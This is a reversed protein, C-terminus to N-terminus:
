IKYPRMYLGKGKYPKLYLGKGNKSEMAKNHRKTEILVKDANKKQNVANAITSAGGALSGAAAAAAALMPITFVFGGEKKPLLQTKATKCKCCSGKIMPKGKKNMFQTVDKTSTKTKCKM